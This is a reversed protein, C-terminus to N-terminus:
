TPMALPPKLLPVTKQRRLEIQAEEEKWREVDRTAKAIASGRGLGTGLFGGYQEARQKERVALKSMQYTM